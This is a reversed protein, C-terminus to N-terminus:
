EGRHGTERNKAVNEIGRNNRVGLLFHEIARAQYETLPTTLFDFGHQGSCLVSHIVQNRSVGRLAKVFYLSEEAPILCDHRCGVVLFPPAESHVQAVPSVLEWLTPDEELPSPMVNDSFFNILYDRGEGLVGARDVLDYRGYIPVAAAVSCDVDEFGAKFRADNPLLACLSALHGGASGGTVAIFDPDGGFETAHRKVWAIARLVDGYIAEIRHTPGLRYNIAVCMWGRSALYYM